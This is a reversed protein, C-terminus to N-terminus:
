SCRVALLPSGQVAIDVNLYAVAQTTLVAAHQEAYESSGVLGYEEADWSLLKITRRPKWGESIMKGFAKAMELLAATGSSPDVAGFVWADRHNGVLVLRDPEVSGTITGVVNWISTVTNNMVVKVHVVAPGPGMHYTFNLGGQWDANPVQAGSLAAGYYNFYVLCKIDVRQLRFVQYILLTGRLLPEADHWSLPQIPISPMVWEEMIEPNYTDNISLRPGDITSPWGPTTPDGEGVWM